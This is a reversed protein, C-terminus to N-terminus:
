RAWQLPVISKIQDTKLLKFIQNIEDKHRNFLFTGHVFLWSFYFFTGKFLNKVLMAPTGPINTASLTYKWHSYFKAGCCQTKAIM